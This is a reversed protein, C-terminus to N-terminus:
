LPQALAQRVQAVAAPLDSTILEAPLRLVRYGLRRLKDDRRADARRRRELHPGDVEVILKVAPACFDAIFRHAMPVQRRFGVGLKRARLESWLKAEPATLSHRHHRARCAILQAFHDPVPARTRM